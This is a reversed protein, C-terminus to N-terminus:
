NTLILKGFAMNQTGDEQDVVMLRYIYIGNEVRRGYMNRIWAPSEVFGGTNNAQWQMIDVIAGRQDVIELHINLLHDSRDHEVTFIVTETAPNPFCLVNSLKIKTDNSVVFEITSEGGNSFTDFAKVKIIHRGESLQGLPYLVTGTTFDDLNAVYFDNLIVPEEDDLQYSINQGIGKKSINIGSEDSLYLLLLPVANVKQGSRFSDDNIFAEITPPERDSFAPSASGGLYFDSTAGNADQLGGEPKAYMTIKGRVQQYSINKPVIFEYFFDGNEISVKGRFLANSWLSYTAPQSEDGRTSFSVPRDFMNVTLEGNFNEVKSGNGDTVIGEVTVKNMASVTDPVGDTPVGNLHTIQLNFAPYNLRMSPDGLLAFNRNVPGRLSNNKTEKIVDGLRPYEGGIKKFISNFFAQNVIYNTNSFVPRTTTLLAIAGGQPNLLLSESGSEVAPDDYRGFECTATVFLPLRNGNTLKVLSDKVVVREDMLVSANGHGTYNIIFAGNEIAQKIALYTDPSRQVSQILEQKYADLYIKQINFQTYATDVFSALRDADRLHINFDGDDAVFYIDSRWAGVASPDTSYDVLKDVVKTAQELSNVPLRGVGIDAIHDGRTEELWDGEDDDLFAFYDDSSYSFIQDLSERSQYVPVYNHDVLRKKYDYSCDGFLLLYKLRGPVSQRLYRMYDRIASIDQMGSSFENYVQDITVVRVDLGDNSRRFAALRNAEAFFKNHTVIVLEPVAGNRLNQNSIRQHSVPTKTSSLQFSIFEHLGQPRYSFTAAGSARIFSQSVPRSRDTIDWIQEMGNAGNIAYTVLPMSATAKNRFSLGNARYVLEKKGQLFFYDLYGVSTKGLFRNFSYEVSARGTTPISEASVKATDIRMTGLPDYDDEGIAPLEQNIVSFGNIEVDFSSVGYSQAVVSSVLMVETGALYDGEGAEFTASSNASSSFIDSYWYRGSKGIKFEDYGYAYLHDYAQILQDQAVESERNVIRKGNAGDVRLFYYTTDSYLNKEYRYCDCAPQYSYEDPSNGYFLLYDDSDFIGDEEGVVVIANEALGEKRPVDNRQPLMGGGGNGYLALKRPDVSVIGVGAQQLFARDIKYIGSEVVGIKLWTAESLVSSPQGKLASALLLMGFFCKLTLNM